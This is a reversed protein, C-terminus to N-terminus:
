YKYMLPQKNFSKSFTYKIKNSGLTKVYMKAKGGNFKYSGLIEYTSKSLRKYKASSAIGMMPSNSVERKNHYSFTYFPSSDKRIYMKTRMSYGNSSKILKSHYSGRLVKPTGKHWRAANATTGVAGIGLGATLLATAIMTKTKM